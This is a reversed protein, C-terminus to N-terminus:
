IQNVWIYGKNYDIAAINYIGDEAALEPGIVEQDKVKWFKPLSGRMKLGLDDKGMFRLFLECKSKYQANATFLREEGFVM